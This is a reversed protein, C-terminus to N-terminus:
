LIGIRCFVPFSVKKSEGAPWHKRLTEVVATVPNQHHKQIYKQTASWSELYGSLHELTWGVDISFKPSDIEKFPFSVTKYEQEVLRRADDWFPGVTNTYFNMIIADIVPEIYLLAYGWIALVGGPKGVRKVEQYFKDRDFWHLAQAVTILDFQHDAFSTREAPSVSYRINSAQAANDLQQQSIDTAEVRTFHKALAHAVQGNGTACDWAIDTHKVYQLIYEYIAEPYDPRFAAYIKSHGSFFDKM